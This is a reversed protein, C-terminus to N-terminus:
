RLSARFYHVYFLNEGCFRRLLSTNGASGRTISSIAHPVLATPQYLRSPSKEMEHVQTASIGSVLYCAPEYARRKKVTDQQLFWSSHKFGPNRACTLAERLIQLPWFGQSPRAKRLFRHQRQPSVAWGFPSIKCVKSSVQFTFSLFVFPITTQAHISQDDYARPVRNYNHNPCPHEPWRISKSRSGFEPTPM